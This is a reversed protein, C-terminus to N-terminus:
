RAVDLQRRTLYLFRVLDYEFPSGTMYYRFPNSARVDVAYLSLPAPNDYIVQNIERGPPLGVSTAFDVTTGTADRVSSPGLLPLVLYPGAPVRWRGLTQGFDEPQRAVGMAGAVDLFGLLGVSSNVLFRIAARSAVEPRAQLLANGATGIEGLNAFFNSIGRRVPGPVLFRYGRVIPLLLYTDVEYNFRYIARNFPELPDDVVFEPLPAPGEEAGATTTPGPTAAGGACGGLVLVVILIPLCRM